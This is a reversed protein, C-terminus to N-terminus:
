VSLSIGSVSGDSSSSLSVSGLSVTASAESSSGFSIVSIVSSARGHGRRYGSRIRCGGSRRISLRVIYRGSVLEPRVRFFSLPRYTALRMVHM